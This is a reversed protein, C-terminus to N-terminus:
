DIIWGWHSRYIEANDMATWLQKEWMNTGKSVKTEDSLKNYVDKTIYTYTSPLSSLKAAYNAARGVWVLDNAGRVGTKAVFLKSTDIGTVHSLTYDKEKYIRKMQPMIINKVAWNIKLATKAASSNRYDGMYVAMIRDGDHATITGDHERIVKAACYLFTKYIEAAFQDTNKDVLVTSDAMDAYLVTGEIEIAENKLGLKSDDDPVKTGERRTWASRFVDYTWEELDAKLAM